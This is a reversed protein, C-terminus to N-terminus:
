KGLTPVFWLGVLVTVICFLSIAVIFSTKANPSGNSLLELTVEKTFQCADDVKVATVYATLDTPSECCSLTFTTMNLACEPQASCCQNSDDEIKDLRHLAVGAFAIVVVMLSFIIALLGPLSTRFSSAISM